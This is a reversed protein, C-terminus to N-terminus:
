FYFLFVCSVCLSYVCIHLYVYGIQWRILFFVRNEKDGKYKMYSIGLLMDDNSIKRDGDADGNEDYDTVRAKGYPTGGPSLTKGRPVVYEIDEETLDDIGAGYSWAPKTPYDKGDISTGAGCVDQLLKKLLSTMFNDHFAKLGSDPNENILDALM